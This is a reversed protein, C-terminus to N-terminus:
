SQCLTDQRTTKFLTNSEASISVGSVTLGRPAAPDFEGPRRPGRHSGRLRLQVPPAPSPRRPQGPRPPLDPTGEPDTAGGDERKESSPDRRAPRHARRKGTAKLGAAKCAAQLQRYSLSDPRPTTAIAGEECPRDQQQVKAAAAAGAAASETAASEIAAARTHTAQRRARAQTGGPKM